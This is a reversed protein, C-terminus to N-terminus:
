DPQPRSKSKTMAVGQNNEKEATRNYIQKQAQSWQVAAHGTKQQRESPWTKSCYVKTSNMTSVDTAALHEQLELILGFWWGEVVTSSLKYATGTSTHQKTKLTHFFIEVKAEDTWLVNNGLDQTQESPAPSAHEKLTLLDEALKELCATSPWDTELKVTM